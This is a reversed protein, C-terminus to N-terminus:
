TQTLLPYRKKVLRHNEPNITMDTVRGFSQRLDDKERDLKKMITVYLTRVYNILTNSSSVNRDAAEGSTKTTKRKAGVAEARILTQM